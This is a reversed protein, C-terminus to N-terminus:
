KVYDADHEISINHYPGITLQENEICEDYTCGCWDETNKTFYEKVRQKFNEIAYEKKSFAKMFYGDYTTELVVYIKKAM